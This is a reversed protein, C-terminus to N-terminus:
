EKVQADFDRRSVEHLLRQLEQVRARHTTALNKSQGPDNALDFLEVDKKKFTLLMWDGHRLASSNGGPGLLYIPRPEAKKEGRIIPWMDQGDWKLDQKPRYGAIGAITPFWDAVHIPADSQGPKLRGPWNVFAPTRIGGEYLTAKIGRFPRNIGPIRFAPHMGAYRTDNNEATSGGNDSLFVILTHDRQGTRELAKVIQGVGDDMHSVCAGYVKLAPDKVDPYRDQWEKPEDIPLHVATYPVYLFFPGDRKAEIFQIAERTILDTVHGEEDVLKGNRHWTQSFEGKKYLHTYSTVGGALSGYSHDFGFHRPGWELKSGLHWKGVIATHYGVSRLGAAITVTDFPLVRNNTPNTCGFRSNFRGTLLSSRTPSCVPLSYHHELRISEKALKDLNPTKFPGGHWGVDGFGLDDAMIVIINPRAPKPRTDQAPSTTPAAVFIAAALLFTHTRPM